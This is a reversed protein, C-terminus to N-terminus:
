VGFKYRDNWRYQGLNVDFKLVDAHVLEELFRYLMDGHKNKTNYIGKTTRFIKYDESYEVLGLLCAIYYEGVDFDTWDSFLDEITLLRKVGM